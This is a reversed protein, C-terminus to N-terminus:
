RKTLPVWSVRMHESHVVRRFRDCEHECMRASKINLVKRKVGAKVGDMWMLKPRGRGTSCKVRAM